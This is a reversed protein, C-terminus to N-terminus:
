LHPTSVPLLIFNMIEGLYYIESQESFKDNQRFFNERTMLKTIKPEHSLLYTIILGM